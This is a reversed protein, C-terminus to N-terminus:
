AGLSPRTGAERHRCQWGIIITDPKGRFRRLTKQVKTRKVFLTQRGWSANTNCHAKM